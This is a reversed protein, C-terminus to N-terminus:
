SAPAPATLDTAVLLGDEILSLVIEHAGEAAGLAAADGEIQELTRPEGSLSLLEFLEETIELAGVLWHSRADGARELVLVLYESTTPDLHEFPLPPPTPVVDALTEGTRILRSLIEEHLAATGSATEVLLHDPSLHFRAPPDNAARGDDMKDVTSSTGRVPGMTETRFPDEASHISKSSRSPANRRLWAIETELKALPAIRPDKEHQAWGQLFIGFTLALSGRTQICEHFEPSGFFEDCVALSGASEAAASLSAAFEHLLVRRARGPRELDARWARPDPRRLWDVGEPPIDLGSLTLAPEELVGKAFRVDYLMRVMVRQLANWKSDGSRGDADGLEISRGNSPPTGGGKGAQDGAKLRDGLIAHIRGFGPLTDPLANRECEFVVARLNPCRPVVHEFIQWTEPLVRTTHDDNIWTMGDVAIETGGAVHLEVVRELPFRDLGALPDHGHNKQYIALHACDLLMGTDALECARAFFELLHLNGLFIVGPPNEPIVELGVTDRMRRVGEALLRAAEECLVPPLLLMHGPERGGFHWMGADGCLWAPRIREVLARVEDLWISDLDASEELNVDLFHYTSPRGAAIWRRAHEDLGSHTEIGIELFGAYEPHERALAELDLAHTGDGAGYETSVGLGLHPLSKVRDLFSMGRAQGLGVKCTLDFQRAPDPTPSKGSLFYRSHPGDDVRLPNRDAVQGLLIDREDQVVPESGWRSEDLRHTHVQRLEGILLLHLLCQPLSSAGM